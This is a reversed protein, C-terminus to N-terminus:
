RGRSPLGLVFAEPAHFDAEERPHAVAWYSTAGGPEALVTAVGLKWDEDAIGLGALDVALSVDCGDERYLVTFRLAPLAVEATMGSRYGDFRYVNWHGTPALNFEWYGPRGECALFFEFCTAEWLEDRREPRPAPAPLSVRRGPDHLHWDVQLRAGERQVEGKLRVGLPAPLGPFPLLEFEM